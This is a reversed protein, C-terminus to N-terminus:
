FDGAVVRGFGGRGLEIDDHVELEAPDLLWEEGTGLEQLRAVADADKLDVKKFLEGTDTTRADSILTGATSSGKKESQEPEDLSTKMKEVRFEAQARMTREDALTVFQMRACIEQWRLGLSAGTVLSLFVVNNLVVAQWAQEVGQWSSASLLVLSYAALLMIFIGDIWVLIRWRILLALHAFTVLADLGLAKEAMLSRIHLHANQDDM